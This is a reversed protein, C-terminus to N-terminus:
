VYKTLYYNIGAAYGELLEIVDPSLQHYGANAREEIKLLHVLYDSAAGKRGVKTSLQARTALLVNEITKFDDEAHAYALGYAVDADTEGFIHPVGWTDRYITANFEITTSPFIDQTSCSFLFLLIFSYFIKLKM